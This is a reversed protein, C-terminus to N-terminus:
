RTKMAHVDFAGCSAASRKTQWYGSGGVSPGCVNLEWSTSTVHHLTRWNGANTMDFTGQDNVGPLLSKLIPNVHTSSGMPLYRLIRMDYSLWILAHLKPMFRLGSVEVMDGVAVSCKLFNAWM